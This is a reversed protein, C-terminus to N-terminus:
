TRHIMRRHQKMHVRWRQVFTFVPVVFLNWPTMCPVRRLRLLGRRTYSVGPAHRMGFACGHVKVHQLNHKHPFNKVQRIRSYACTTPWEIAVIGASALVADMLVTASAWLARFLKLHAAMRKAAGPLHANAAQFSRAELAHFLCGLWPTGTGGSLPSVWMSDRSRRSTTIEHSACSM